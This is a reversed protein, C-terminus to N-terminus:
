AGTIPLRVAGSEDRELPGYAVVVELPLAGYIHPFLQAAARNRGADRQRRAGGSRGGRGVSRDPRRFAQRGNRDAAGRDVPPHLRRGSRGARGRLQGAELARMQDATLVKYAILPRDSM